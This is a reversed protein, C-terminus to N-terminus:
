AIAKQKRISWEYLYFNAVRQSAYVAMVIAMFIMGNWGAVDIGDLRLHWLGSSFFLLTAVATVTAMAVKFLTFSPIDKFFVKTMVAMGAGSYLGAVIGFFGGFLMGFVAISMAELLIVPLTAGLFEFRSSTLILTISSLAGASGGLMAGYAVMNLILKAKPQLRM